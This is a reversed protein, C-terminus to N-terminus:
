EVVHLCRKFSTKVLFDEQTFALSVGGAAYCTSAKSIQRKISPTGWGTRSAPVEDLRPHPFPLIDWGSKSPPTGEMRIKSPPVGQGSRPHPIGGDLGPILYGWRSRPHPVVGMQVQSPTCGWRSRPHHVVGDLGSVPYRGGSLTFLSFINGERMRRICATVLM